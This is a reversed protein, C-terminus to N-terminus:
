DILLCSPRVRHNQLRARVHPPDLVRLSDLRSELRILHEVLHPNASQSLHLSKHPNSKAEAPADLPRPPGGPRPRPPLPRPPRPPAFLLPGFPPLLTTREMGFNRM